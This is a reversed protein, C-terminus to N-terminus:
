EAWSQWRDGCPVQISGHCFHSGCFQHVPSHKRASASQVAGSANVALVEALRDHGDGVGEIFEDGAVDVQVLDAAQHGFGHLLGAADGALEVGDGNVVADGHAMGAHEVRQWAAVDDGVGDLIGDVRM